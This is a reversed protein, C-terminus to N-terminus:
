STWLGIVNDMSELFGSMALWLIVRFELGGGMDCKYFLPGGLHLPLIAVRFLCAEVREEGGGKPVRPLDIQM